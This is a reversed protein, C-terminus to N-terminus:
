GIRLVADAPIQAHAPPHEIRGRLTIPRESWAVGSARRLDHRGPPLEEVVLSPRGCQPPHSEALASCLRPTAADLLLFGSVVVLEDGDAELADEISLPAEPSGTGGDTGCGALVLALAVVLLRM